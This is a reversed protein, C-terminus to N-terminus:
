FDMTYRNIIKNLPAISKLATYYKILATYCIYTFIYSCTSVLIIQDLEDSIFDSYFLMPTGDPHRFMDASIKFSSCNTLKMHITEIKHM